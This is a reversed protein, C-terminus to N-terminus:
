NGGFYSALMWAFIVGWLGRLSYIVNITDARAFTSISYVLLSAQIAVLLSGVSLSKWRKQRLESLPTMVKLVGLAFIGVFWFSVTGLYGTGWHPTFSQM